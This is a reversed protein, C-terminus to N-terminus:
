HAHINDYSSRAPLSIVPMQWNPLQDKQPKLLYARLLDYYLRLDLPYYYIARKALLIAARRNGSKRFIKSAKRYRHSIKSTAIKHSVFKDGGLNFYFRELIQGGYVTGIPSSENSLNDPQWRKIISIDPVFLFKTKTSIRVFIDYDEVGILQEDWFINEWVSKHFCIASPFLSPSTAFFDRTMCGSKYRKDASMNAKTGDQRLCIIRTYATNYDKNKDLQGIITELYEPPWLDDSDLFSIYQGKSKDLGLNRAAAPGTNDKYYYKLRRDQVQAVVTRTDDTSGDDVVLVELDSYTQKLVCEVAEKVLKSRNYTPIVVSVTPM